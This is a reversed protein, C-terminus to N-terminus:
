KPIKFQAFYILHSIFIISIFLVLSWVDFSMLTERQFVWIGVSMAKNQRWDCYARKDATFPDDCLTLKCVCVYLTRIGKDKAGYITYEDKIETPSVFVDGRNIQRQAVTLIRSRDARSSWLLLLLLKYRKPSPISM